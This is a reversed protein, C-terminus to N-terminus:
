SGAEEAEGGLRSSLQRSIGLVRGIESMSAGQEMGLAFLAVRVQHRATEFEELTETLERPHEVRANLNGLVDMLPEGSEIRKSLKINAEKYRQLLEVVQDTCEVLESLRRVLRKSKKSM